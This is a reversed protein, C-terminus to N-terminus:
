RVLAVRAVAQCRADRVRVLYLGAEVLRGTDDRGHWTARHRGSTLRSDLLTTVRRGRLDFVEVRVPRADPDRVAGHVDFDIRVTPNFPNPACAAIAVSATAAGAAFTSQDGNRRDHPLVRLAPDGILTWIARTWADNVDVTDLSQRWADGARPAADVVTAWFADELRRAAYLFELGTFGVAGICAAPRERLLATALGVEGVHALASPAMTDLFFPLATPPLAVVDDLDLLGDGLDWAAGSGHCTVHVLGYAGSGLSDRAAGVSLPLAGAHGAHYEYLRVPEFGAMAEALRQAISEAIETGDNIPTTVGDWPYPHLVACVLLARRRAAGAAAAEFSEVGDVFRRAERITRVPVRGLAIEPGLDFADASGTLDYVGDGDLDWESDFCVLYLDSTAHLTGTPGDRVVRRAPVLDGDGGILVYRAGGIELAAQLYRRLIAAPDAHDTCQVLVQPWSVVATTLGEAERIAALRAFEPVFADTTIVLYEATPVAFATLPMEAVPRAGAPATTALIIWALTLLIPTTIPRHAITSRSM